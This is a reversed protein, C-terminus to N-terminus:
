RNVQITQCKESVFYFFPIDNLGIGPDLMGM